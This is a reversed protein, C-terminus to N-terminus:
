MLTKDYRFTLTWETFGTEFDFEGTTEVSTGTPGTLVFRDEPGQSVLGYTISAGTPDDTDFAEITYVPTGTATTEPISITSSGDELPKVFSPVAGQSLCSFWLHRM